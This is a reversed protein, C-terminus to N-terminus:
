RHGEVQPQHVSYHVTGEFQTLFRVTHVLRLQLHQFTVHAFPM